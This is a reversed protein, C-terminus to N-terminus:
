EFAAPLGPAAPRFNEHCTRCAEAVRGRAVEVADADGRAADLELVAAERGLQNALDRFRTKQGSDLNPPSSAALGMASVQVDRAAEAMETLVGNWRDYEDIEGPLRERAAADFSTMVARLQTAHMAHPGAKAAEPPASRQTTCAAVLGACLLALVVAHGSPNKILARNM